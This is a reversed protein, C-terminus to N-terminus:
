EWKPRYIPPELPLTLNDFWAYGKSDTLKLLYITAQTAEAGTTFQLSKRTWEVSSVAIKVQPRGHDKIGIVAQQSSDSVHMWATLTYTTEPTLGKIVQSVGDDGPGLRLEHRSTGTPYDRGSQREIGWGNGPTLRAQQAGTKQWGELSDMEFCANYITNMWPVRPPQYTPLPDPPHDLDCGAHWFGAGFGYAGLHATSTDLRFDGSDPDKFPPKKAVLNNKLVVHDPLRPPENLINRFYRCGYLDDRHIHDFTGLRGTNWCSNNYVLNGYSPNNFRLPDYDVNWVVNHHVIANHSLHDFYIGMQIHDAHNDHVRNYRFVTNAFDTNHGYFMGLDKTLWGADSVENHQVISQMLGHTNIVDRGAHKVTNHSFVTRRGSLTVTGKWLGAYGGHHINCNIIRNDHGRVTLVSSSSYGLDCNLVLINNGLILVGYEDEIGKTYTHSVYRGKLNKLIIHSSQQDTRIGGARFHIGKIRIHSRNSLDMVDRRRKAEVTIQHLRSNKPPILLLQNNEADFFWEGPDQLAKRAGRLVFMNGKQPKYFSKRAPAFTLTQTAADYDTVRSTWCIWARGGACWLEAGNWADDKGPLAKCTITTSSGEAAESRKPKFLPNEGASPWCAETLMKGGSFIQNGDELDWPMSASYLNDAVKEWQDLIDAGSIIVQENNYAMFTIMAEPKGSRDPRLVERYIGKRLFCTDGPNILSAAKKITAFPKQLTGPYTDSGDPSVYYNTALSPQLALINCIALLWYLPISLINSM